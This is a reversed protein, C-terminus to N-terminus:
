CQRYTRVASPTPRVMTVYSFQGVLEAYEFFADYRLLSSELLIYNAAHELFSESENCCKCACRTSCCGTQDEPQRRRKRPLQKVLIVRKKEPQDALPHESDASQLKKELEQCFAKRAPLWGDPGDICEPLEHSDHDGLCCTIWVLLRPCLSLKKGRRLAVYRRRHDEFFPMLNKFAFDLWVAVVLPGIM